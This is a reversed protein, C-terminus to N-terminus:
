KQDFTMNRPKRGASELLKEMRANGIYQTHRYDNLGTACRACYYYYYYYYYYYNSRSARHRESASPRTARSSQVLDHARARQTRDDRRGSCQQAQEDSSAPLRCNHEM